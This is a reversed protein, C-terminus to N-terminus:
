SSWTSMPIVAMTAPGNGFVRVSLAIIFLRILTAGSGNRSNELLSVNIYNRSRLCHHTVSLLCNADPPLYVRVIDSKKNAVHDIFGLDQHSFGKHDQRWVHSALITYSSAMM